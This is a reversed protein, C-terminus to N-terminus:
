VGFGVFHGIKSLERKGYHTLVIYRSNKSMTLEAFGIM